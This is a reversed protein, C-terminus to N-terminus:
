PKEKGRENGTAGARPLEVVFISGTPSAKRYLVDGGADRAFRRSIALGLGVGQPRTTHFPKFLKAVEEPPIGTGRDEVEIAVTWRGSRVRMRVTSGDESAQAANLVLNLLIQRLHVEPMHVAIREPPFETELRIGRTGLEVRVFRRVFECSEQVDCDASEQAEPRAYRLFANTIEELRKLDARIGELIGEIEARRDEPFDRAVRDEASALAFQMSSVPHRIEHALGAALISLDELREVEALRRQLHYRQVSTRLGQLLLVVLVLCLAIAIMAIWFWISDGPAVQLLDSVNM